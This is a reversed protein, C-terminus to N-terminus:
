KFCFYSFVVDRTMGSSTFGIFDVVVLPLSFTDVADVAVEAETEAARGGVSRM